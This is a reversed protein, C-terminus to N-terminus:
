RREIWRSLLNYAPPPSPSEEGEALLLLICRHTGVDVNTLIVLSGTLRHASSVGVMEGINVIQESRFYFTIASLM